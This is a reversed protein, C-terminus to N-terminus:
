GYKLMLAIDEDKISIKKTDIWMELGPDSLDPADGGLSATLAAGMLRPGRVYQHLRKMLQLVCRSPFVFGSQFTDSMAPMSVSFVHKLHTRFVRSSPYLYSM